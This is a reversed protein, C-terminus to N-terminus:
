GITLASDGVLVLRRTHVESPSVESTTLEPNAINPTTLMCKYVRVPDIVEGSLPLVVNIGVACDHSLKKPSCDAFSYKM